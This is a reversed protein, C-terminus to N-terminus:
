QDDSPPDIEGEVRSRPVKGSRGVAGSALPHLPHLCGSTQAYAYKRELSEYLRLFNPWRQSLFEVFEAIVLNRFRTANGTSHSAWQAEPKGEIVVALRCLYEERLVSLGEAHARLDGLPDYTLMAAVCPALDQEGVLRRTACVVRDFQTSDWTCPRDSM